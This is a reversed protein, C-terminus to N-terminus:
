HVRCCRLLAGWMRRPASLWGTPSATPLVRVSRRWLGRMGTASLSGALVLNRVVGQRGIVRFLGLSDAEAAYNYTLTHGAGEFSGNFLAVPRFTSDACVDAGLRFSHGKCGATSDAMAALARLHAASTIVFPDAATGSGPLQSLTDPQSASASAMYGAAAVVAMLRATAVKITRIINM